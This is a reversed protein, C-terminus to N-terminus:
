PSAGVLPLADLRAAVPKRDDHAPAGRNARRMREIRLALDTQSSSCFLFDDVGSLLEILDPDIVMVSQCVMVVLPARDHHSKCLNILSHIPANKTARIIVIDFRCSITNLSGGTEIRVIDSISECSRLSETLHTCFECEHLPQGSDIVLANWMKGRRREYLSGACGM